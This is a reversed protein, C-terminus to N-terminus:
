KGLAIQEKNNLCLYWFWSAFFGYVFLPLQGELHTEFSFSIAAPIFFVMFWVSNRFDPNFFPIILHALFIFLGLIGASAWYIVIQSSPLFYSDSTLEPINKKYWLETENQLNSFGVGFLPSEKIIDKGALLSYYRVADSLGERYEGKSYHEFDYKIFHVRQQFSPMTKYAIFPICIMIAFIVTFRSKSIKNFNFAFLILGSIYLSIFGTKAGLLHIFLFQIAIYLLLLKKLIVSKEITLQYAALVMSIVIAWGIRIHDTYSLVFMVKSVKYEENITNFHNFYHVLSYITSFLMFSIFLYNVVAISKKNPNFVFVFAPFLFLLCKMLGRGTYFENGLTIFDSLLHVIALLMFSIMWPNKFLWKIKKLQFVTYVGIILFGVNSIVRSFLFGYFM